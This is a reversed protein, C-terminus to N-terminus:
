VERQLGSAWTNTGENIYLTEKSSFTVLLSLISSRYKLMMRNIQKQNIVM